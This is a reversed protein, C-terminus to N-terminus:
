RGGWIKWISVGALGRRGSRRMGGCRRGRMWNRGGGGLGRGPVRGAERRFSGRWACLRRRRGRVGARGRFARWRSGMGPPFRGRAWYRRMGVRPFDRLMGLRGAAMRRWRAARGAVGCAMVDGVGMTLCRRRWGPLRGDGARGRRSGTRVCRRGCRMRWGCAMAVRACGTLGAGRRVRCGGTRGRRMWGRGGPTRLMLCYIPHFRRRGRAERGLCRGPERCLGDWGMWRNGIRTVIGQPFGAAALRHTWERWVLRRCSGAWGRRIAIMWRAGRRACRFQSRGAGRSWAM